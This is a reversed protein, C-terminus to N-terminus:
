HLVPADPPGDVLYAGIDNHGDTLAGPWLLAHVIAVGYATPHVPVVAAVTGEVTVAVRAGDPV